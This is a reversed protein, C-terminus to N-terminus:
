LEIGIGAFAFTGFSIFVSLQFVLTANFNYLEILIVSYETLLSRWLFCDHIKM